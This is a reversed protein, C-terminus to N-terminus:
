GVVGWPAPETLTLGHDGSYATPQLDEPGPTKNACLIIKNMKDPMKGLGTEDVAMQGLREAQELARARINAIINKRTELSCDLFKRQAMKAAHTAEDLSDFLCRAAQTTTATTPRNNTLPAAEDRPGTQIMTGPPISRPNEVTNAKAPTVWEQSVAQGEPTLQGEPAGCGGAVPQSKLEPPTPSPSVVPSIEGQTIQELVLRAIEDVSSAQTNQNQEPM